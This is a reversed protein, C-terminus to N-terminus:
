CGVGFRGGLQDKVIQQLSVYMLTNKNSKHIIYFELNRPKNNLAGVVKEGGDRGWFLDKFSEWKIDQNNM